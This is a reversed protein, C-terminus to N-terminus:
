GEQNAAHLDPSWRGVWATGMGRGMATENGWGWSWLRSPLSKRSSSAPPDLPPPSYATVVAAAALSPTGSKPLGEEKLKSGSGSGSSSAPASAPARTPLPINAPCTSIPTPRSFNRKQRGQEQQARGQSQHKSAQRQEPRTSPVSAQSRGLRHPPRLSPIMPPKSPPPFLSFRPQPRSQPPRPASKPATAPPAPLPIAPPPVNVWPEGAPNLYVGERRRSSTRKPFPRRNPTPSTSPPPTPLPAPVPRVLPTAPLEAPSSVLLHRSAEHNYYYRLAFLTDVSRRDVPTQTRAQHQAQQPLCVPEDADPSFGLDLLAQTSLSSSGSPSSPRTPPTDPRIAQATRYGGTDPYMTAVKRCKRARRRFAFLLCFAGFVFLAGGITIALIAVAPLSRGSPTPTPTQRSDSTSGSSVNSPEVSPAKTQPGCCPSVAITLITSTIEVPPFATLAATPERREPNSTLRSRLRLVGHM